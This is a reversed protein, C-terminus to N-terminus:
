EDLKQLELGGLRLDGKAAIPLTGDKVTVRYPGLAVWPGGGAFSTAHFRDRENGQVQLTGIEGGTASASCAYALLSYSGNDVPYSFGDDHLFFGTRLMEAMDADVDPKPTVNSTYRDLVSAPSGSWANGEIELAAGDLNVGAGFCSPPDDINPARGWVRQHQFYVSLKKSEHLVNQSDYSYHTKQNFLDTNDGTLATATAEVADGQQLVKGRTFTIELYADNTIGNGRLQRVLNFAADASIDQGGQTASGVTLIPESVSNRSFYYRIAMDRLLVTEAGVYTLVVKFRLSATETDDNDQQYSLSFLRSCASDTCVGSACDKATVCAEEAACPECRPGGCDVDTEDEDQEQNWCHTPHPRQGCPGIDVPVTVAEGGEGGEPTGSSGGTDSTGGASPGGGGAKSGGQNPSSGGGPEPQSGRGGRSEGDAMVAFDPFTCASAGSAALISWRWFQSACRTRVGMGAALMASVTNAEGRNM